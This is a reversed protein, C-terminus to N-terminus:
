GYQSRAQTIFADLMTNAASKFIPGFSYALLKSAFEFQLHLSVQCGKGLPKFRWSGNLSKFPGDLLQMDIAENPTLTNETTFCHKIGAKAISVKAQMNSASQSLIECNDCWPLFNPYAGVDNVLEYLQSPLYPVLAQKEVTPM